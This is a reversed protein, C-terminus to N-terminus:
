SNLQSLYIWTFKGVKYNKAIIEIHAGFLVESIFIKTQILSCENEFVKPTSIHFNLSHYDTDLFQREICCNFIMTGSSM